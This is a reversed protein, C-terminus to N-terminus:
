RMFEEHHLRKQNCVAFINTWNPFEGLARRRNFRRRPPSNAIM